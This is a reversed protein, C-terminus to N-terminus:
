KAAAPTTPAPLVPPPLTFANVDLYVKTRDTRDIVVTVLSGPQVRSAWHDAVNVDLQAAYAAAAGQDITLFLRFCHAHKEGVGCEGDQARDIRAVARIGDSPTNRGRKAVANLAVFVLGCIVAVAAFVVAFRRRRRREHALAQEIKIRRDEPLNAIYDNPDLQAMAGRNEASLVAPLKRVSTQAATTRLTAAPQLM